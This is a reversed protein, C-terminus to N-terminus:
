GRNARRYAAPTQGTWAKFARIFSKENRFGSAEAVQKLPQQTRQLLELARERRVEDKLSQLTRGQEHLHRHLTRPSVHLRQALATASRAQDPEGLLCQRARELLLRDRRYARVILTLAQQLMQTLATEDRRLPQDLYRADFRLATRSADFALPGPFLVAYAASHAPRPYAFDTGLLPIRSDIFWCALGHLNRLVTVHCFERLEDVPRPDELVVEVAGEHRQLRLQIDSAILGHHRCWRRLATGLDPAGMSARALMGYSGWPLRRSFWGLAEDDLERMAHSSLRELQEATIRGDVAALATPRIQAASLAAGPDLGRRGYACVIARAFAM